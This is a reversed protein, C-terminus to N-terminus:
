APPSPRDPSRRRGPRGDAGRWPGATVPSPRVDPPGAGPRFPTVAADDALGVPSRGGGAPLQQSRTGYFTQLPDRTGPSPTAWPTASIELLRAARRHTRCTGALRAAIRSARGRKFARARPSPPGPPTAPRGPAPLPGQQGKAGGFGAPQLAHHAHCACLAPVSPLSGSAQGTSCGPVRLHASEISM